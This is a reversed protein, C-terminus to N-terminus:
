IDAYQKRKRKNKLARVKLYEYLIFPIAVSLAASFWMFPHWLGDHFLMIHAISGLLAAFILVNKASLDLIIEM